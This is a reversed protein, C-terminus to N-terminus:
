YSMTDKAGMQLGDDGQDQLIKIKIQGILLHM